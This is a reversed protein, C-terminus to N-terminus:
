LILDPVMRGAQGHRIRYVGPLDVPMGSNGLERRFWVDEHTRQWESRPEQARRSNKLYGHARCYDGSVIQIGGIARNMREPEFESISVSVLGETERARQICADGLDHSRHGNVERPYILRADTNGFRTFAEWCETTFWYDADCFWVWDAQTALAGRNRGISRRCLEARPLPQANWRVGAVTQQAFWAVARTTEEDEPTHFVTATVQVGPPPPGLVLSSLQHRLLTAYRYCHTVVEIKLPESM